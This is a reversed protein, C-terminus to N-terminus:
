SLPDCQSLQERHVRFPGVQFEKKVLVPKRSRQALQELVLFNSVLRPPENRKNTVWFIKFENDLGGVSM